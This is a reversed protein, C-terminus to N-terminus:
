IAEASIYSCHVCNDIKQYCSVQCQTFFSRLTGYVKLRLGVKPVVEKLWDAGPGSALGVAIADGDM